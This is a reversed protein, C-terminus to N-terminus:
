VVEPVRDGGDAHARPAQLQSRRIGFRSAAFQQSRDLLGGDPHIAQNLIQEVDGIDFPAPEREVDGLTIRQLDDLAGLVQELLYSLGSGVQNIWAGVRDAYRAGLLILAGVIILATRLERRWGRRWGVLIGVLAFPLTSMVQYSLQVQLM